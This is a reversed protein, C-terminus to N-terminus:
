GAVEPKGVVRSTVRNLIREITELFIERRFPKYLIDSFLEVNPIKSVSGTILVLPVNPMRDKVERALEEGSSAQLAGDTIVLDWPSETLGDMLHMVDTVDSGTAVDHGADQICRTLLRLLM